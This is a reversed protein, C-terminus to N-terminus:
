ADKLAQAIGLFERSPGGRVHAWCVSEDAALRNVYWALRSVEFLTLHLLRDMSLDPWESLKLAITSSQSKLAALREGCEALVLILDDRIEDSSRGYTIESM